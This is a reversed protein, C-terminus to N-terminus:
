HSPTPSDVPTAPTRYQEPNLLRDRATQAELLRAEDGSDAANKIVEDLIAVEAAFKVQAIQEQLAVAESTGPITNALRLSLDSVKGQAQLQIADIAQSLPTVPLAFEPGPNAPAPGSEVPLTPDDSAFVPFTLVTAITVIVLTQILRKM